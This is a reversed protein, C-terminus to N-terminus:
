TRREILTWTASIDAWDTQHPGDVAVGDTEPVQTRSIATVTQARDERVADTVDAQRERKSSWGLDPYEIGGTNDSSLEPKPMRTWKGGTETENGGVVQSNGVIKCPYFNFPQIPTETVRM